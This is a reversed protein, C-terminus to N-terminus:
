RPDIESTALSSRWSVNRWPMWIPDKLTPSFSAALECIPSGTCLPRRVRNCDAMRLLDIVAGPELRGALHQLRFSRAMPCSRSGRCKALQKRTLSDGGSLQVLFDAYEAASSVM